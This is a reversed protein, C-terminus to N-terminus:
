RITSIRDSVMLQPTRNVNQDKLSSTMDGGGSLPAWFKCSLMRIASAANQTLSSFLVEPMLLSKYEALFTTSHMLVLLVGEGNM